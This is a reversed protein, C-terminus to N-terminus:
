RWGIKNIVQIIVSQIPSWETRNCDHIPTWETRNGNYILTIGISYISALKWTLDGFGFYPLFLIIFILLQLQVCIIKIGVVVKYWDSKYGQSGTAGDPVRGLRSKIDGRSSGRDGRRSPPRRSYPNSCLFFFCVFM